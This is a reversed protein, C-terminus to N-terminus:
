YWVPTEFRKMRAYFADIIERDEESYNSGPAIIIKDNGVRDKFEAGYAVHGVPLLNPTDADASPVIIFDWGMNDAPNVFDSWEGYDFLLEGPEGGFKKMSGKPFDIYMRQNPNAQIIAIMEERTPIVMKDEKLFRKWSEYLRDM